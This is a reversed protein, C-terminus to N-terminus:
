PWLMPFDDAQVLGAAYEKLNGEFVRRIAEPNKLIGGKQSKIIRRRTFQIAWVVRGGNGAGM